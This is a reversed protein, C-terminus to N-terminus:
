CKDLLHEHESLQEVIAKVNQSHAKDCVLLIEETDVIVIDKLGLTVVLKDHDAHIFVGESSIDIHDGIGIRKHSLTDTVLVDRLASWSGIDSWGIEASMVAIHSMSELIAYDFSIKKTKAYETVLVEDFSETGKAQQILEFAAMTEPLQSAFQDLVTGRKVIVMGSNWVYSGDILYEQATTADPKEVFREVSFIDVEKEDTMVKEGCKIYGYGTEPATPTIGMTMIYEPNKDIFDDAIQLLNRFIDTKQIYHDSTLFVLTENDNDSVLTSVLGIAPATDRKDPETLINEVPHDPLQLKVEETYKQNTAIIIDKAAFDPLLREVSEQLMTKDGLLKQFQKPKNKRSLPWLRTGSGGAMIIIKM